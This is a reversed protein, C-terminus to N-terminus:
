ESMLAPPEGPLPDERCPGFGRLTNREQAASTHSLRCEEFCQALMELRQADAHGQDPIPHREAMFAGDQQQIIGVPQIVRAQSRQTRCEGNQRRPWPEGTPCPGQTRRDDHKIGEVSAVHGLVQRQAQPFRAHADGPEVVRHGLRQDACRAARRAQQVAQDAARRQQSAHGAVFLDADLM